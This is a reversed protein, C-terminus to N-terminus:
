SAEMYRQLGDKWHPMPRSLATELRSTDLVSYAPRPAPRPYESTSVPLVPISSGLLRAIEVSFGHWSTHGSNVAHLTGVIGAEVLELIVRSLDDCFTPCGLQDDVVRLSERGSAILGRMTEVFNRGGHGYLWATRLILHRDATRALEEGRLKSRGYASRPAVPDDEVYPRRADGSFVYDTSVQILLAGAANCAGALHGVAEGNISMAADEDSECDDVATM